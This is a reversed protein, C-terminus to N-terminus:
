PLNGLIVLLIRTGVLLGVISLVIALWFAVPKEDRVLNGHWYWIFGKTTALWLQVLTVAMALVVPLLYPIM